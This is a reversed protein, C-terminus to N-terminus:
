QKKQEETGYDVIPLSVLSNHLGMTMSASANARTIEEAALCVTVMDMGSGGYEEPIIMGLFGLEAMKMILDRPYEGKEEIEMERPMIQEEAFEKATDRIMLQEETFQFDM